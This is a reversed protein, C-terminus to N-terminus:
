FFFGKKKSQQWTTEIISILDEQKKDYNIFNNSVFKNYIKKITDSM